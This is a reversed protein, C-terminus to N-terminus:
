NIYARMQMKSLILCALGSAKINPVINGHNNNGFCRITLNHHWVGYMDSLLNVVSTFM